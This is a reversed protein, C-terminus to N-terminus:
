ANAKLIYKGGITGNMHERDRTLELFLSNDPSAIIRVGDQTYATNGSVSLNGTLLTGGTLTNNITPYLKPTYFEIVMEYKPNRELVYTGTMKAIDVVPLQVARHLFTVIQGRTCIADPSFTTASTGSTIGWSAAWDVAQSDNVDSFNSKVAGRWYVSHLFEVAELRTCPDNPRFSDGPFMNREHAWLVANYYYSGPAIDSVPFDGTPTPSGAARWIFTIIQARTCTKDPSFTTDSTGSTVGNAVAWDVAEAYYANADVDVFGGAALSPVSLGSILVLALLLSLLKKKM